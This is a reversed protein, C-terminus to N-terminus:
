ICRSAGEKKEGVEDTFYLLYMNMFQCAAPQERAKQNSCTSLLEHAAAAAAAVESRVFSIGCNTNM